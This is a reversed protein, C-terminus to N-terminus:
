AGSTINDPFPEVPRRIYYNDAINDAMQSLKSVPIWASHQNRWTADIYGGYSSIFDVPVPWKNNSIIEVNVKDDRIKLGRLMGWEGATRADNEHFVTNLELLVADIRPHTFEGAALISGSNM